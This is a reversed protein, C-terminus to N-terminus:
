VPRSGNYDSLIKSIQRSLSGITSISPHLAEPITKFMLIVFLALFPSPDPDDREYMDGTTPKLGKARFHDALRGVFKSMSDPSHQVAIASQAAVTKQAGDISKTKDRLDKVWNRVCDRQLEPYVRGMLQWHDDSVSDCREVAQVVAALLDCFSDVYSGRQQEYDTSFREATAGHLYWRRLNNITQWDGDNWNLDVKQMTAARQYCALVLERGQSSLELVELTQSVFTPQAKPKSIIRWKRALHALMAKVGSLEGSSIFSDDVCLRELAAQAERSFGSIKDKLRDFESKATEGDDDPSDPNGSLASTYAPSQTTRRINISREFRAYIAGVKSGATVEAYTLERISALRGLESRFRRDTGVNGIDSMFRKWATPTIEGKNSRKLAGIPTREGPKRPRGKRSM